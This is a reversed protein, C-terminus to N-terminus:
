NIAPGNLMAVVLPSLYPMMAPLGFFALLGALFGGIHAEWSVGEGGPLLSMVLGGFYYLSVFALAIAVVSPQEYAIVLVYGWYGMILGSAGIHIARRGFLWVFLGSGVIIIATVAYFVQVGGLLIFNALVFLPISNFFLHNFDGHLFPSVFIGILGFPHRPHIGFINLRYGVLMNVFHVAWLVAIFSLSFHINQRMIDVFIEFQLGM